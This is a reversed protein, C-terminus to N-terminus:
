MNKSKETIWKILPQIFSVFWFLLCTEQLGLTKFHCIFYLGSCQWILWLFWRGPFYYKNPTKKSDMGSKHEPLMKKDNKKKNRIRYFRDGNKNTIISLAQTAANRNSTNKQKRFLFREWESARRVRIVVANESKWKM